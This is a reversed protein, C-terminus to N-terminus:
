TRAPLACIAAGAAFLDPESTFDFSCNALFSVLAPNGAGRAAWRSMIETVQDVLEVRPACPHGLAWWVAAPLLSGCMRAVDRSVERSAGRLMAVAPSMVAPAAVLEHSCIAAMTSPGVRVWKAIIFVMAQLHDQNLSPAALLSKIIAAANASHPYLHWAIGDLLQAILASSKDPLLLVEYLTAEDHIGCEIILRDRTALMANLADPAADFAPLVALSLREPVAPEEV